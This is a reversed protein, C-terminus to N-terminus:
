KDEFATDAKHWLGPKTPIPTPEIPNDLDFFNLGHLCQEPIPRTLLSVIVAVLCTLTFLLLAFYLFHFKIAEPRRDTAALLCPPVSYSYEWIFRILGIVLGCILGWFAGEENIRKWFIALVYISCIPPALFSTVSQIYDFLKGGQAASIIPIWLISIGVLVLTFIRQRSFFF